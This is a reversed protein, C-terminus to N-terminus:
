STQGPKGRLYDGNGLGWRKGKIWPLRRGPAFTAPTPAELPEDFLGLRDYAAAVFAAGSSYRQGALKELETYAIDNIWHRNLFPRVVVTEATPPLSEESVPVARPIGGGGPTWYVSHQQNRHNKVILGVDTWKGANGCVVVGLMTVLRAYDSSRAVAPETVKPAPEAPTPTGVRGSPEKETTAQELEKARDLAKQAEDLKGQKELAIGLNYHPAAYDPDLRIAIHFEEIAEELENQMYLVNGLSNHAMAYDPDLRIATRYKEIAEAFRGRRSLIIGGHYHHAALAPTAAQPSPSATFKPAREIMAKQATSWDDQAEKAAAAYDDLTRFTGSAADTRAVHRLPAPAPEATERELDQLREALQAYAHERKSRTSLPSTRTGYHSQYKTLKVSGEEGSHRDAFPIELDLCPGLFVPILTLEDAEAKAVIRPLEHSRIFKSDLFDQSILLVATTADEVAQEIKAKWDEGDELGADVWLEILEADELPRLFRMLQEFAKEDKRSYSVFIM